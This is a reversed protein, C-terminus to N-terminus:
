STARLVKLSGRDTLVLIEDPSSGRRIEEIRHEPFEYEGLTQGERPNIWVIKGEELALWLRRCDSDILCSVVSHGHYNALEKVPSHLVDSASLSLIQGDASVSIVTGELEFIAVIADSHLRRCQPAQSNQTSYSLLEGTATGVLTRGDSLALGCTSWGAWSGGIARPEDDVVWLTGNEDLALTDSGLSLVDTAPVSLPGIGSILDDGVTRFKLLEGEQDLLVGGVGNSQFHGSALRHSTDFALIQERSHLDWLAAQGNEDITVMTHCENDRFASVVPTSKPWSKLLMGNKPDRECLRGVEVCVVSKGGPRAFLPVCDVSWSSEHSLASDSGIAWFRVVEDDSLTLFSQPSLAVVGRVSEGMPAPVSSLIALNRDLLCLNQGGAILLQSGDPGRPLLRTVELNLDVQRVSTVSNATGKFVELGDRFSVLLEIGEADKELLAIGLPMERGLTLLQAPKTRIM